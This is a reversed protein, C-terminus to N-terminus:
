TYVLFILAIDIVVKEWQYPFVTATFNASKFLIPFKKQYCTKGM